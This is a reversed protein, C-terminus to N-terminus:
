IAVSFVSLVSLILALFQESRNVGKSTMGACAPIWLCCRDTSEPMRRFSPIYKPININIVDTSETNETAM